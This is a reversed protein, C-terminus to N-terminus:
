FTPLTIKKHDLQRHLSGKMMEHACSCSLIEVNVVGNMVSFMITGVLILDTHTWKSVLQKLGESYDGKVPAFSVQVIKHIVAPLNTGEFTRELCAM